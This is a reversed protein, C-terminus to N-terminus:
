EVIGVSMHRDCPVCSPFSSHLFILRVARIVFCPEGAHPLRCSKKLVEIDM